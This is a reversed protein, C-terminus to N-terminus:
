ETVIGGDDGAHSAEFVVGYHDNGFLFAAIGLLLDKAIEAHGLGLAVTLGEAGHFQGGLVFAGDDRQDIGGACVRAYIGFLAALGFGDRTVQAFHGTKRDGHNGDANAFAAAASREGQTDAADDEHEFVGDVAHDRGLVAGVDDELIGAFRLLDRRE